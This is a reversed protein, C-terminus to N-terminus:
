EQADCQELIADVYAEQVAVSPSLIFFMAAVDKKVEDIKQEETLLLNVKQVAKMIVEFADDHGSMNTFDRAWDVAVKYATAYNRFGAPSLADTVIGKWSSSVKLSGAMEDMQKMIEETSITNTAM